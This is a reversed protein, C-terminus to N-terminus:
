CIGSILRQSRSNSFTASTRVAEFNNATIKTHMQGLTNINPESDLDTEFQFQDRTGINQFYAISGQIPQGNDDYFNPIQEGVIIDLLGDNNIDGIAPSAQNGISIGLDVINGFRSPQGEGGNNQVYVLSGNELGMVLDIDGDNDM